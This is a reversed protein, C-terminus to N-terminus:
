IYMCNIYISVKSAKRGYFYINIEVIIETTDCLPNGGGSEQMTSCMDIHNDLTKKLM